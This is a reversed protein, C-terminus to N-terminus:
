FDSTGKTGSASLSVTLPLEGALSCLVIVEVLGCFLSNFVGIISDGYEGVNTFINEGFDLNSFVTMKWICLAATLYSFLCYNCHKKKEVVM